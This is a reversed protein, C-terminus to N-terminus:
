NILFFQFMAEYKSLTKEVLILHMKKKECFIKYNRPLNKALLKLPATDGSIHALCTCLCM